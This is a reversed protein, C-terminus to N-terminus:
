RSRKRRVGSGVATRSTGTERSQMQLALARYHHADMHDSEVVDLASLLPLRDVSKDPSPWLPTGKMDVILEEPDRDQRRPPPLAPDGSV